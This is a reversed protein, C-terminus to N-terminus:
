RREKLPLTIRPFFRLTVWIHFRSECLEYRTVAVPVPRHRVWRSLSETHFPFPVRRFFFCCSCGSAGTKTVKFRRSVVECRLPNLLLVATIKAPGEQSLNTAPTKRSADIGLYFKKQFLRKAENIGVMLELLPLPRVQGVCRMAFNM